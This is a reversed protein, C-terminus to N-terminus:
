GVVQKEYGLSEIYKLFKKEYDDFYDNSYNYNFIEIDSEIIKEKENKGDLCENYEENMIIEPLMFYKNFKDNKKIKKLKNFYKEIMSISIFKYKNDNIKRINIFSVIINIKYMMGLNKLKIFDNINISYYDHIGKKKVMRVKVDIFYLNEENLIIYDPRKQKNNKLSLSFNDEIQDLHIFSINKKNLYNAFENEGYFGKFYPEDKSIVKKGNEWYEVIEGYDTIIAPEGNDNHLKGDEWFEMHTDNCEVAPRSKGDNSLVGNFFRLIFCNCSHDGQLLEGNKVFKADTFSIFRSLTQKEM